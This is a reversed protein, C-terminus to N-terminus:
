PNHKELMKKTFYLSSRPHIHVFVDDDEHEIKQHNKLSVQVDM